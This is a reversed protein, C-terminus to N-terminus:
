KVYCNSSFKYGNLIDKATMAKKNELQIIECEIEGNQTSISIKRDQILLINNSNSMSYNVPRAKIIKMRIQNKGNFLITWAGPKPTLGRIKGIISDISSEWDIRTNKSTLKPAQKDNKSIVQKKGEIKNQIILDITKFLIESGISSLKNKLTEFDEHKDILVKEQMLINGYDIKENIKIISVGTSTENNMLCWNIPAAGRYDPLLSAHLNIAGHKPIKYLISPLKKFAVVVILIPNVKKIQKIFNPDSLNDPQLVKINNLESYKKVESKSIKLGRGSRKDPSTIVCSINIDNRLLFDLSKVAFDPTGMFIINNGM